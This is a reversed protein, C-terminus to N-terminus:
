HNSLRNYMINHVVRSHISYTIIQKYLGLLEDISGFHARLNVICSDGSSFNSLRQDNAANTLNIHVLSLLQRISVAYLDPHDRQLVDPDWASAVFITDIGSSIPTTFINCIQLGILFSFALIVPTFTGTTNYAPDTFLVSLYALLACAFGVFTAGLSLVPGILCMNILADIGRSKIFTWTDKAAAFYSKGYLAITIFSDITLVSVTTSIFHCTRM